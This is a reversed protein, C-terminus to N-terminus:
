FSISFIELQTFLHKREVLLHYVIILHMEGEGNIEREGKERSPLFNFIIKNRKNEDQHSSM